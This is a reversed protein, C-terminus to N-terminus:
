SSPPAGMGAGDADGDGGLVKTAVKKLVTAADARRMDTHKAVACWLEGRNPAAAVCRTVVSEPGVAGVM